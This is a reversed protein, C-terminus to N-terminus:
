WRPRDCDPCYGCDEFEELFADLTSEYSIHDSLWIGVRIVVRAVNRRFTRTKRKLKGVLLRYPKRFVGTKKVV